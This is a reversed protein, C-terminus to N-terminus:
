ALVLIDTSGQGRRETLRPAGLYICISRASGGKDGEVEQTAVTRQSFSVPHHALGPGTFTGGLVTLSQVSTPSPCGSTSSEGLDLSSRVHAPRLHGRRVPPFHGVM